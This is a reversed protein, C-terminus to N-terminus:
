GRGGSMTMPGSIRANAWEFLAATPYLVKKGFMQYPPGDGRTAKTALTKETIRYGAECLTDAAEKRTLRERSRAPAVLIGTKTAGDPSPPHQTSALIAELLEIVRKRWETINDM